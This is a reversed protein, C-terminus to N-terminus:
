LSTGLWRSEDREFGSRAVVQDVGEGGSEGGIPGLPEGRSGRAAGRPREQDANAEEGPAEVREGKASGAGDAEDGREPAQDEDRPPPWVGGPKRRPTPTRQAWLYPWVGSYTKKQR